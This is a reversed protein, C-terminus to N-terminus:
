IHELVNRMSSRPSIDPRPQVYIEQDSTRPQARHYCTSKIRDYACTECRTSCLQPDRPADGRGDEGRHGACLRFRPPIWGSSFCSSFCNLVRSSRQEGENLASGRCKSLNHDLQRGEQKRPADTIWTRFTRTKLDPTLTDQSCRPLGRRWQCGESHHWWDGRRGGGGGGGPRALQQAMAWWPTRGKESRERHDRSAISEGQDRRPAVGDEDVERETDPRVRGERHQRPLYGRGVVRGCRKLM